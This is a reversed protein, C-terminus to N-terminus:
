ERDSVEGNLVFIITSTRYGSWSSTGSTYQYSNMWLTKVNQWQNYSQIYKEHVDQPIEAFFLLFFLRYNLRVAKDICNVNGTNVSHIFLFSIVTFIAVLANM